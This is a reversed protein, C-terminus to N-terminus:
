PLRDSIFNALTTAAPPDRNALVVVTYGDDTFIRLEGNMGPAGGNHGLFRRGDPTQSIFDYPILKGDSGVMGGETLLRRHAEDTLKDAMLANAFRLLDGPTSYGGGAPTGRYPLTDAASQFGGPPGMYSIARKPLSLAEAAMGTANMGAPAFIRREVYDDYSLGSVVEVIRGLLVFGYNSYQQSSGPPFVPPRAGFFAVYDKPDRLDQRHTFFEPTFIDGTGGTHTLLEDISVHRAIDQNPYDKLYDGVRGKLDLKGAQALQMVAVATFMKGMSGFRFQTDLANPLRAQRDALGYAAAFLPKGDRAILVAGAFRDTAALSAARTQVAAALQAPALKPPAPVDVPRPGVAVFRLSAIRHSPAPEVAVMLHPWSDEDPDRAVFDAETATASAFGHLELRRMGARVQPWTERKWLGTADFALLAKFSADDDEPGRAIELFRRVQQTAPTETLPSSSFSQSAAPSMSFGIISAMVVVAIACTRVASLLETM